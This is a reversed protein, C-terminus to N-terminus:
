CTSVDSQKKAKASNDFCTKKKGHKETIFHISSLERPVLTPGSSPPGLIERKKEGRGGGNENKKKERPTREHFQPRPELGHGLWQARKPESSRECITKFHKYKARIPLGSMRHHTLWSARATM